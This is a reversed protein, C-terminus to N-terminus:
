IRESNGKLVCDGAITRRDEVRQVQLYSSGTDVCPNHRQVGGEQVNWRRFVARSGPPFRVVLEVSEM